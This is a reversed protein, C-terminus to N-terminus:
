LAGANCKALEYSGKMRAKRLYHIILSATTVTTVLGVAPIIFEHWRPQPSPSREMVHLIFIETEYGLDNTVNVLYLGTDNTTLNLLLFTGDPSYLEKGSDMKKLVVAPPPFSISKCCITINQGELVQLSPFVEVTTNRPPAKVRIQTKVKQTGYPNSAVCEYLGADDLKAPFLTVSISNEPSSQLDVSQGESVRRLTVRSAPMSDSVCTITVHDGEKLEGAPSVVISTNRPPYHLHITTSVSKQSQNRPVAEMNLTVKCFIQRGQDNAGPTFSLVSTVNRLGGDFLGDELLVLGDQHVWQIQLLSAPFVNSVVCGIAAQQGEVLAEASVIVPDTPFSFVKIETHRVKRVSGCHVECTYASDDMLEAPQLLVESVNGQTKVRSRVPGDLRNKWFFVPSPCGTARCSLLLSSGMEVTIVGNGPSLDVELPFATIHLLTSDKQSGFQNSAECEYLGADALKAPSLKVFATHSHNSQLDTGHHEPLRRLVVHPAPIAQSNCSITVIDGEKLEGAPTVVITTNRPPGQVTVGVRATKHGVTNSMECEYEGAHSPMAERFILSKGGGVTVPDGGEGLKRWRIEPRPKGDAECTLTFSEGEQVVTMESIRIDQPAYLVNMTASTERSSQEEPVGELEHRARCTITRGNDEPTPTYTYKSSVNTMPGEAGMEEHLVTEGRLWTIHLNEPPYVDPVTCTLTNNEGMLMEENGTIVPEKPFSYVRIKARQQKTQGGCTVRCLVLNEHQPRVREFLLASESTNSTAASYLPKDELSTWSFSAPATCGAARCRLEGRDGARWVPDKPSM